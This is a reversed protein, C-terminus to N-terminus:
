FTTEGSLSGTLVDGVHVSHANVSTICHSSLLAQKRPQARTQKTTVTAVKPRESLKLDQRQGKRVRQGNEPLKLLLVLQELSIM